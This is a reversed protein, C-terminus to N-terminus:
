QLYLYKRSSFMEEWCREVFLWALMSQCILSVLIAKGKGLHATRRVNKVTSFSQKGVNDIIINLLFNHEERDNELRGNKKKEKERWM